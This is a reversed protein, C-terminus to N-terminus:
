LLNDAIQLSINWRLLVCAADVGAALAAMVVVVVSLFVVCCESESNVKRL